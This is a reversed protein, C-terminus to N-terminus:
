RGIKGLRLRDLMGMKDAHFRALFAPDLQYLEELMRRRDHGSRFLAANFGRYSERRRWSAAAEEEFRDHLAAGELERQKTLLLATRVADSITSGTSPHFFGGRMGLKAVRAGGVRWFAGFDGDIAVPLVSVEERELQAPKWRRKALYADLRAASRDPEVDPSDSYYSDEIRMRTESFPICQMFRAGEYQDVTADILM